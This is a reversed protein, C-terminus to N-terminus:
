SGTITANLLAFRVVSISRRDPVLLIWDRPGAGEFQVRRPIAPRDYVLPPREAAGAPLDVSIGDRDAVLVAGDTAISAAFSSAALLRLSDNAPDWVAMRRLDPDFLVLQADDSPSVANETGQPALVQYTRRVDMRVSLRRVNISQRFAAEDTADAVVLDTVGDRLRMAFLSRGDHAFVPLMWSQDTAPPVQFAGSSTRVSLTFGEDRMERSCWAISGDRSLCAFANVRGDDIMWDPQPTESSSAQARDPWHVRGIRRSGDGVVEEVLFGERDASRGLILGKDLTAVKSGTKDQLTWIELGSAMPIRQDNSALLTPWDPPVGTQVAMWRGDPSVLPLTFGDYAVVCLGAVAVSTQSATGTQPPPSDLTPPIIAGGNRTVVTTCGVTTFCTVLTVIVPRLFDRSM